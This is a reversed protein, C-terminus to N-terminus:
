TQLARIATLVAFIARPEYCIQAVRERSIGEFRAIDSYTYGDVKLMVIRARRGRNEVIRKERRDTGEATRKTM